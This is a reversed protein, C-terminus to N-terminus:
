EQYNNGLMIREISYMNEDEFEQQLEIELSIYKTGKVVEVMENYYDLANDYDRYVSSSELDSGIKMEKYIDIFYEINMNTPPNAVM